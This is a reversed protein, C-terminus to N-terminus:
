ETLAKSIKASFEDFQKKVKNAKDIALESTVKDFKTSSIAKEMKARYVSAVKSLFEEPSSFEKLKGKGYANNLEFSKALGKAALAINEIKVNRTDFGSYKKLLEGVIADEGVVDKLIDIMFTTPNVSITKVDAKQTRFPVIVGDKMKTQVGYGQISMHMMEAIASLLNGFLAGKVNHEPKYRAKAWEKSHHYTFIMDVQVYDNGDKVIIFQGATKSEPVPVIFPYNCKDAFELIKHYYTQVNKYDTKSEDKPISVLTDIDGYEKDPQETEDKDYYSVSGVPGMFEVPEFGEDKLYKNAGDFFKETLKVVRRVLSPTLKTDQNLTTAWGGELLNSHLFSKFQM